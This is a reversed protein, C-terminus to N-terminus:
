RRPCSMPAFGNNTTGIRCGRRSWSGAPSRVEPDGASVGPFGTARKSPSQNRARCFPRGSLSQITASCKVEACAAKSRRFGHDCVSLCWGASGDAKAITEVTEFFEARSVELGGTSRVVLMSFLNADLLAQAARDTLRGAPESERAEGSILDYIAKAREVPTTAVQM